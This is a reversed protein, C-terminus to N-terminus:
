DVSIREATVNGAVEFEFNGSPDYFDLTFSGTHSNGNNTLTVTESLNITGLFTGNADYSWVRHALKYGGRTQKWVGLCVSGTRPDVNPNHIETGGTNWLQYAEQITQNDVTFLIHWLGVINSHNEDPSKGQLQIPRSQSQALATGTIMAALSDGCSAFAGASLGLVLIACATLKVLNLHVLNLSQTSKM